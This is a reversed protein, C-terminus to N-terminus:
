YCFLMLFRWFGCFFTLIEGLQIYKLVIYYWAIGYFVTYSFEPSKPAQIVLDIGILLLQLYVDFPDTVIPLLECNDGVGKTTTTPAYPSAM